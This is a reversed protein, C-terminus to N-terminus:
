YSDVNDPIISFKCCEEGYEMGGAPFGFSSCLSLCTAASNTASLILKYKFVRGTTVEGLCGVYQWSGPLGTKQPTPVPILTIPANSYVSLRNGAGCTEKANGGCPMNCETDANALVGGQQIANGCNCQTSYELGAVSYGAAICAKVCTEVTMTTQDAQRIALAPGYANDVYCGKYAWGAPLGTAQIVASTTSPPPPPPPAATTTVPKTVVPQSTTTPPPPPPPVSTTTPKNVSYMNLRNPGGCYETSNGNCTMSCGVAGDAAPGGYNSTSNGCYCEGGYEVGALIYYLSKCTSTCLAVTLAGGGGPTAAGYTLTRAASDNYCGLSNWGLPGIELVAHKPPMERVPWTATVLLHLLHDVSLLIVV